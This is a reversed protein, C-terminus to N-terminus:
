NCDLARQSCSVLETILVNAICAIVGYFVDLVCCFEIVCYFVTVACCFSYFFQMNKKKNNNDNNNNIVNIIVFHYLCLYRYTKWTYRENRTM